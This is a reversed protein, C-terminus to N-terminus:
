QPRKEGIAITGSILDRKVVKVVTYSQNKEVGRLVSFKMGVNEM